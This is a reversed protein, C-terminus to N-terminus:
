LALQLALKAKAIAASDDISAAPETPEPPHLMNRTKEIVSRPLMGGGCAAVMQSDDSFMIGDILGKEKAQQATLWTEHDMMELADAESMGSKACYASSIAKNATQLRESARDMDHYNGEAGTSANHVMIQATPSMECHGAMALISAASAALGTVKINAGGAYSRLDTYMQSGALVDGGYCTGIEVEAPNGAAQDIENKIDQPCASPIGFWDYIEKDENQVIYGNIQIM